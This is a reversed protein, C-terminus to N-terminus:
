GNLIPRNWYKISAIAHEKIIICDGLSYNFSPFFGYITFLKPPKFLAQKKNNPKNKKM